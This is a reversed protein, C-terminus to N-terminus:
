YYFYNIQQSVNPIVDPIHRTIDPYSYSFFFNLYKLLTFVIKASISAARIDVGSKTM